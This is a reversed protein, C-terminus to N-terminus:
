ECKVESPEAIDPVVVDRIEVAGIRGFAGAAFSALEVLTCVEKGLLIASRSVELINSRV